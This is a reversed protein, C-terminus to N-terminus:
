AQALWPRGPLLWPTLSEFSQERCSNREAIPRALREPQLPGVDIQIGARKRDTM